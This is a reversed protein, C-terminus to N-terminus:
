VKKDDVDDVAKTKRLGAKEGCAARKTRNSADATVHEIKQSSGRLSFFFFPFLFLEVGAIGPISRGRGRKGAAAAIRFFFVNM